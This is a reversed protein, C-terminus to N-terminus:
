GFPDFEYCGPTVLLRGSPAFFLSTPSLVGGAGRFQVTRVKEGRQDYVYTFPKSLSVWLEGSSSVAAARVLPPVIPHRTGSPGDRRPWTTPMALLDADIEVGEIHREYVLGGNADYRRFMPTGTQFVFYFGGTPDILPLGVNFALHLERDAEHGTRRLEGIQRVPRGDVDLESIVAGTEPQNILFTRQGFQLSGVGNLVLPGIALRPAVPDRLRFYGVISGTLLFYQVRAQGGPGDAVAILDDPNITLAGPSFLEGRAIGIELIRRATGTKPDIVFVEHARRDLVVYEGSKAQVFALPEQFRAAIEVPLSAVPSLVDVGRQDVPAALLGTLALGVVWRTFGLSM